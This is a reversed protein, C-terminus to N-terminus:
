NKELVVLSEVHHTQPFMDVPTAATVKYGQAGLSFVDRSMTAPDCSVYIITEPQLRSLDKVMPKELGQRPPDLLVAKFSSRRYSFRALAEGVPECCFTGPNDVNVQQSNRRAWFISRQNHEVGTVKWDLQQLPISFNGIGCYLDLLSAGRGNGLIACVQAVLQQNQLANTQFFCYSDWCLAYCLSTHSFHQQLLPQLPPAPGEPKRFAAKDRTITYPTVNQPLAAPGLPTDTRRPHLVAIITGDAPSDILEIAKCQEATKQLSGSSFLKELSDNIAETAILCRTTPIIRHSGAQHFGLNQKRDLHLRIRHRYAFPHPSALTDGIAAQALDVRNREMAEILLTQKLALQGAYSLHQLNCGGCRTYYPCPADVREPSPARVTQLEAQIFRKARKKERVEVLEGPLVYPVMVVMGNNLRGLGAGGHIIKEIKLMEKM